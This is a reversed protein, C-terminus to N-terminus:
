TLHFILYNPDFNMVSLRVFEKVGYVSTYQNKRATLNAVEKSAKSVPPCNCRIDLLIQKKNIGFLQNQCTPVAMTYYFDM